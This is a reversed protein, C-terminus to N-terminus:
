FFYTAQVVVAERAQRKGVPYEAYPLASTWALQLEGGGFDYAGGARLDFQEHQGGGGVATLAGAHGFLRWRTAPRFNVSLDTYLTSIGSNLYNPSYYLYAAFHDHTVGTYLEGYSVVYSHNTNTNVSTGVVGVDWNTQGGLRAVYGANVVYGLVGVGSHATETLIASAGVYAGSPHDYAFDLNLTPKGNSLSFGRIRYDSFVSASLGIQALAGAPASSVVMVVLASLISGRAGLV